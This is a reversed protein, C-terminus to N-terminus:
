ERQEERREDDDAAVRATTTLIAGGRYHDRARSRNRRERFVEGLAGVLRIGTFPNIQV